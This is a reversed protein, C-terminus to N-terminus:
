ANKYVNNCNKILEGRATPCATELRLLQVLFTTPLLNMFEPNSQVREFADDSSCHNAATTRRPRTKIGLGGNM